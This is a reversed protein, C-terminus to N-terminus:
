RPGVMPPLLSAICVLSDPAALPAISEEEGFHTVSRYGSGTPERYVHLRRVTLNVVWYEPIGARAYARQKRGQDLRLTTDSIEVLLLADQPGPHRAAYDDPTGPVILVDPEPESQDHLTIPSQQRAYCGPGFATALVHATKSVATAHPPQPGMRQLIEGDLLELREEPGFIGAEWARYYEDRTWRRPRVGRDPRKVSIGPAVVTLSM